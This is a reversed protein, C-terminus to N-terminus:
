ANNSQQNTNQQPRQQKNQYQKSQRGDQRAGDQRAGDQQRGDQRGYNRRDGDQQRADQQRGNQYQRNNQADPRRDQQKGNKPKSVPTWGNNQNANVQENTDSDNDANMNSSKSFRFRFPKFTCEQTSSNILDDYKQQSNVILTYIYRDNVSPRTISEINEFVQETAASVHIKYEREVLKFTIGPESTFSETVPEVQTDPVYLILDNGVLRMQKINTTISEPLSLRITKLHESTQNNELQSSM